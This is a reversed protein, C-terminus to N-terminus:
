YAKFKGNSIKYVDSNVHFTTATFEKLTVSGDNFNFTVANNKKSYSTKFDLGDLTLTDKNDFGYIIDQM